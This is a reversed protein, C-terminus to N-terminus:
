PSLCPDKSPDPVKDYRLSGPIERNLISSLKGDRTMEIWYINEQDKQCIYLSVLWIENASGPSVDPSTPEHFRIDSIRSLNNGIIGSVMPDQLVANEIENKTLPAPDPSTCGVYVVIFICFCICVLVIVSIESLKQSTLLSKM